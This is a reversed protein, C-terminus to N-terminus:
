AHGRPEHLGARVQDAFEAETVRGGGTTALKVPPGDGAMYREMATACGHERRYDNRRGCLLVGTEWRRGEFEGDITFERWGEYGYLIPAVVDPALDGCGDCRLRNLRHGFM